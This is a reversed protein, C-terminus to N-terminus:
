CCSQSHRCWYQIISIQYATPQQSISTANRSALSFRTHSVAFITTAYSRPNTM